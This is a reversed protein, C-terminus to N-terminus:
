NKSAVAGFDFTAIIESLVGANNMELLINDGASTHRSSDLKLVYNNESYNYVGESTANGKLGLNVPKYVTFLFDSDRALGISEALKSIDPNSLGERNLQALAIILTETEKAIKKLERSLSSMEKERNEFKRSSELLGVYDLVIIRTNFKEKWKMIISKLEIDNIIRDHISLPFDSLNIKSQARALLLAEDDNLLFINRIKEPNVGALMSILKGNIEERSIELSIIGAPVNRKICDFILNLGISSKGNKYAGAITVLNTTKFNLHNLSPISDFSFEREKRERREKELKQMFEKIEQKWTIPPIIKEIVSTIDKDISDFSALIEPLIQTIVATKKIKALIKEAEKETEISYYIEILKPILKEVRLELASVNEVLIEKFNNFGAFPIEVMLKDFNINKDQEYQALLFNFLERNNEFFYEQSLSDRVMKIAEEPENIMASLIRKELIRKIKNKDLRLEENKM